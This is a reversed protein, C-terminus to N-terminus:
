PVLNFTLRCDTLNAPYQRDFLQGLGVKPGFADKYRTTTQEYEPRYLWKQMTPDNDFVAYPDTGFNSHPTIDTNVSPLLREVPDVVLHRTSIKKKSPPPEVYNMIKKLPGRFRFRQFDSNARQYDNDMQKNETMRFGHETLDYFEKSDIDSLGEFFVKSKELTPRLDLHQDDHQPLQPIPIYKPTYGRDDNKIGPNTEMHRDRDPPDPNPIEGHETEHGKIGGTPPDPNPIEGHETHHGKIGGTPPDVPAQEPPIPDPHRGTSENIGGGAVPNPDPNTTNGSPLKSAQAYHFEAVGGKTIVFSILGASILEAIRRGWRNTTNTSDGGPDDPDDEDPEEEDNEENDPVEPDNFGFNRDTSHQRDKGTDSASARYNERINGVIMSIESIDLGGNVLMLNSIFSIAGTQTLNPHVQQLGTTVNYLENSVNVLDTQTLKMEGAGTLLSRIHNRTRSNQVSTILMNITRQNIQPAQVDDESDSSNFHDALRKGDRGIEYAKYIPPLLEVGEGLEIESSNLNLKSTSKGM